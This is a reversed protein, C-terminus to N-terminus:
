SQTTPLQRKNNGRETKQLGCLIEVEWEKEERSCSPIGMPQQIGQHNRSPAYARDGTKHLRTGTPQGTKGLDSLDEAFIDEFEELVQTLEAKQNDTLGEM